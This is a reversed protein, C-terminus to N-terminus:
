LGVYPYHPWRRGVSVAGHGTIHFHAAARQLYSRHGCSITSWKSQRDSTHSPRRWCGVHSTAAPPRATERGRAPRKVGGPRTRLSSTSSACAVETRLGSAPRTLAALHVAASPWRRSQGRPTAAEWLADAHLAMERPSAFIKAALHERMEAPLRRLFLGQFLLGAPEGEPLLALMSAM